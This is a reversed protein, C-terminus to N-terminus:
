CKNILLCSIPSRNSPKNANRKFHRSIHGRIGSPPPVDATKVSEETSSVSSEDDNVDKNGNSSTSSKRRASHLAGGSPIRHRCARAFDVLLSNDRKKPQPKAGNMSACELVDSGLSRTSNMGLSNRSNYLSNKSSESSSSDSFFSSLSSSSSSHCKSSGEVLSNEAGASVISNRPIIGSPRRSVGEEDKQTLQKGPMQNLVPSWTSKESMEKSLIRSSNSSHFERYQQLMQEYPPLSQSLHALSGATSVSHDDGQNHSSACRSGNGVVVEDSQTALRRDSRCRKLHEMAASPSYGPLAFETSSLSSNGLSQNLRRKDEVHEKWGRDSADLLIQCIKNSLGHDLAIELANYGDCDEMNTAKPSHTCLAEIVASGAHIYLPGDSVERRMSEPLWREPRCALHVPMRHNKDAMMAGEGFLSLLYKVVDSRSGFLCAVHIPLHGTSQDVTKVMWPWYRVVLEVLDLPPQFRVMAHLLTVGLGAGEFNSLKTNSKDNGEYGAAISFELLKENNRIYEWERDFFLDTLTAEGDRNTIEM